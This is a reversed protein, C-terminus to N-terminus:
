EPPDAPAADRDADERGTVERVFRDASERHERRREGIRRVPVGAVVTYPPVDHKVLSAAGVSVSEGITVGPLVITGAGLLAHPGIAVAADVAGRYALPLTPNAMTAGSFDDQSSFISCRVSVTAFDGITVAARGLVSVFASVHVNRGITIGDGASLICFADIRTQDGISIRDANFLLAHRSIRVDRGVSALGLAALEAPSLFDTSM